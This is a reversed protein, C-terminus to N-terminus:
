RKLRVDGAHGSDATETEGCVSSHSSTRVQLKPTLPKAYPLFTLVCPGALTRFPRQQPRARPLTELIDM